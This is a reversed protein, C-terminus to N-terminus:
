IVKILPFTTKFLIHLCPSQLQSMDSPPREGRRGGCCLFKRAGWSDLGVRVDYAPFEVVPTRKTVRACNNFTWPFPISHILFAFVKHDQMNWLIGMHQTDRGQCRGKQDAHKIVLSAAM